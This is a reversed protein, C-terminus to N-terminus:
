HAASKLQRSVTVVGKISELKSMLRTLQEIGTTELTAFISILDDEQEHTYLGVMNVKEAAVMTSIDRLFGVRDWGEIHVAM